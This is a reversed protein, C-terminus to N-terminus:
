ENSNEWTIDVAKESIENFAKSVLADVVEFVEASRKTDGGAALVIETQGTHIHHRLSDRLNGIIGALASWADEAHLWQDDEEKQMRSAKIESIVADAQAKRQNFESNFLASPDAQTESKLNQGYTLVQFMSVSGDQRIVPFGNNKCDDYFKGISIKYGQEVLWEHARKRNDFLEPEMTM